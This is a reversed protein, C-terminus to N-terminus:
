APLCFVGSVRRLLPWLMLGLLGIAAACTSAEPIATITFTNNSFSSGGFGGSGGFTFGTNIYGSLDTASQIVLSNGQTFNVLQLPLLASPAYSLGSFTVTGGAGGGFDLFSAQTLNLNGFVESVGSGRTITGGSLTIPASNNVQDSTGLLLTAGSAVTVSATSRLAQNQGAGALHLSGSTVTTAGTFTNNGSLLLSGSSQQTLSTVNTGISGSITNTGFGSGRNLLSGAFDV